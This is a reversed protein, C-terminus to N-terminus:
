DEEAIASLAIEIEQITQIIPDNMARSVVLENIARAALKREDRLFVLDLLGCAKILSLLAIDRPQAEEQALVIGRLRRILWYKTSANSEAKLPSPIVWLLHEEEQMVVEKNILRAVIEQPLNQFKQNLHNIWYNFKRAKESGKLIELTEGLLDDEVPSDDGLELRHKDNAKIKGLLALEALIAGGLGLKVQDMASRIFSGKDEHISLLPFEEFVTFV